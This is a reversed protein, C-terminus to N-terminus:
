SNQVYAIPIALSTPNQSLSHLASLTTGEQNIGGSMSPNEQSM